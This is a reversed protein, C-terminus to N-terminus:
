LNDMYEIPAVKGGRLCLPCHRSHPDCGARAGDMQGVDVVGPGTRGYLRWLRGADLIWRAISLLFNRLTMMFFDCRGPASHAQIAVDTEIGGARVVGAIGRWHGVHAGGLFSRLQLGDPLVSEPAMGKVWMLVM